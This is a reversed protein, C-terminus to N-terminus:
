RSLRMEESMVTMYKKLSRILELMTRETDRWTRWAKYEETLKAKAKGRNVIGDESRTHAAEIQNYVFESERLETTVTFYLATLEVLIQSARVPALDATELVEAQLKAIDDLLPL